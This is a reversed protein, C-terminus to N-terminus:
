YKSVIVGGSKLITNEPVSGRVCCQPYVTANRGVICGPNLVTNCGIEAHDGILAGFKKRKTNIREEGTNVFIFSKDSKMNSAIASAGMHACHGIVSDGAYNFHPLKAGNFIISNKIESSNGIVTDDGIVANGRIYASHRIEANKGIICPGIIQSSPSIHASKAIYINKSLKQYESSPLGQGIQAIFEGILDLVEWPYRVKEFIPSAITFSLDFLETIEPLNM